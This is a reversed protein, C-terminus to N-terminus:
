ILPKSILELNFGEMMRLGAGLWRWRLYDPIGTINHNHILGVPLIYWKLGRKQLFKAFIKDEASSYGDMEHCELLLERWTVICGFAGNGGNLALPSNLKDLNDGRYHAGIAGADPYVGEFACNLVKEWDATLEVDSDIFALLKTEACKAGLRRAGGLPEMSHVIKCHFETGIALTDDKSNRDVLIINNHDGYKLISVLARRLTSGSNWTPIVYDIKM